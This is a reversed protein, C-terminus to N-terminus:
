PWTVFVAGYVKSTTALPLAALAFPYPLVMAIRPYSRAMEEEGGVWVLRRERVARAIPIPAGVGVREWPAAFSRPLGAM